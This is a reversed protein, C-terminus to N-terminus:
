RSVVAGGLDDQLKAPAVWAVDPAYSADQYLKESAVSEELRMVVELMEGHHFCHAVALDLRLDNTLDHLVM